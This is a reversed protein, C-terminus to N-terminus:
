YRTDSAFALQEEVEGTDDVIVMVTTVGGTREILEFEPDLVNQSPSVSM